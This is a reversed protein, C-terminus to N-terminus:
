KLDNKIKNLWERATEKSSLPKQKDHNIAKPIDKGLPEGNIAKTVLVQYNYEFLEFSERKPLERLANLGTNIAANFVIAHSWKKDSSPHANKCAENYAEYLKPLGLSEATPKCMELFQGPTPVFPNKTARLAKLGVAIISLDQIGAEFFAKVWTKKACDLIEQNPWAVKHSPFISIIEGFLENIVEAVLNNNNTIKNM